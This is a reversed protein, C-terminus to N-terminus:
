RAFLRRLFRGVRRYWPDAGTPPHLLDVAAPREAHPEKTPGDDREAEPVGPTDTPQEARTAPRPQEPRAVQPTPTSPVAPVWDARVYHEMGTEAELRAAAADAQARDSRDFTMVMRNTDDHVRWVVV